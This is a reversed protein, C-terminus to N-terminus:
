LKFVKCIVERDNVLLELKFPFLSFFLPASRDALFRQRAPRVPAQHGPEPPEGQLVGAQAELGSESIPMQYGVWFCRQGKGVLARGELREGAEGDPLLRLFVLFPFSLPGGPQCRRDLNPRHLAPAARAQDAGGVGPRAAGAVREAQGWRAAAASQHGRLHEELVVQRPVHPVRLLPALAAVPAWTGPPTGAGGGGAPASAATVAAEGGRWSRRIDM